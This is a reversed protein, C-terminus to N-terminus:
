GNAYVKQKLLDGENKRKQKKRLIKYIYKPDFEM